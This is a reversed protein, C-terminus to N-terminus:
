LIHIFSGHVHVVTYPSVTPAPPPSLLPPCLPLFQSLQLLIVIFFKLLFIYINSAIVVNFRQVKYFLYPELSEIKKLLDKILTHILCNDCFWISLLFDLVLHGKGNQLTFDKLNMQGM